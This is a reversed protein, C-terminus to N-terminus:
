IRWAGVYRDTCREHLTVNLPAIYGRGRGSGNLEGFVSRSPAFSPRKTLGPPRCPTPSPTFWDADSEACLPVRADYSDFPPAPAPACPSARSAQFSFSRHRVDLMPPTLPQMLTCLSTWLEDASESDDQEELMDEDELDVVMRDEDRDNEDSGDDNFDDGLEFSARRPSHADCDAQTGVVLQPLPPSSPTDATELVCAVGDLDSPDADPDPAQTCVRPFSRFLGSDPLPPACPVLSEACGSRMDVKWFPQDGHVYRM